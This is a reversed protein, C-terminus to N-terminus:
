DQLPIANELNCLLRPLSCIEMGNVLDGPYIISESNNKNQHRFEMSTPNILLIRRSAKIKWENKYKYHFDYTPLPKPPNNIPFNISAGFYSIISNFSRIFYDGNEKFILVTLRTPIGFLKIAFVENPTEIYCDCKKDRNSGLFWLAHTKHLKYDKRQCIQRIKYFCVLRKIFYRIYPFAIILAVTGILFYGFYM